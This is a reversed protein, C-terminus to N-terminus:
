LGGFLEQSSRLRETRTTARWYSRSRQLTDRYGELFLRHRAIVIPTPLDLDLGPRHKPSHRTSLHCAHTQPLSQVKVRCRSGSVMSKHVTDETKMIEINAHRPSSPSLLDSPTWSRSQRYVNLQPQTPFTSSGLSPAWRSPLPHVRAVARPTAPGIKPM